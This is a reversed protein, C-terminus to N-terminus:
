LQEIYNQTEARVRDWYTKDVYFFNANNNMHRTWIPNITVVFRQRTPHHMTEQKQIFVDDFGAKALWSAVCSETPWNHDTITLAGTYHGCDLSLPILRKGPLVQTELFMIGHCVKHCAVLSQIPNQLHYLLGFNFIVDWMRGTNPLEYVSMEMFEVNSDLNAHHFKFVECKDQQELEKIQDPAGRPGWDYKDYTCVDIATVQDAGGYQESWFAFFGDNTAIDLVSFGKLDNNGLDFFNLNVSHDLKGDWVTGDPYTIKHHFYM